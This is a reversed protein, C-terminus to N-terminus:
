YRMKTIYDYARDEGFEVVEGTKFDTFCGNCMDAEEYVCMDADDYIYIDREKSFEVLLRYCNPGFYATPMLISDCYYYMLWLAKAGSSIKDFSRTRGTALERIVNDMPIDCKDIELVCQKFIVDNNLNHKRSKFDFLYDTHTVLERGTLWAAYEETYVSQSLFYLM